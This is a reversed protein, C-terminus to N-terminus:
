RDWGQYWGHKLARTSQDRLAMLVHHYYRRVARGVYDSPLGVDAAIVAKQRLITGWGGVAYVVTVGRNELLTGGVRRWRLLWADGGCRVATASTQTTIDDLPIPTRVELEWAGDPGAPVPESRVVRPVFKPYAAYDTLVSMVLGVPAPIHTIGEVDLTIASAGDPPRPVVRM